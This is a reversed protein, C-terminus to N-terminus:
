IDLCVERYFFYFNRLFIEFIDEDDKAILLIFM